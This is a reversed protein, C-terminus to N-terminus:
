QVTITITGSKSTDANNQFDYTGPQSFTFQWFDGQQLPGCSDFSSGGCDSTGPYIDATGTGISAVWLQGSSNNTFRVTDGEKVSLTAPSFGNDTYSVLYQFTPNQKLQQLVAQSPATQAPLTSSPAPSNQPESAPWASFLAVILLLVILIVALIGLQKTTLHHMRM